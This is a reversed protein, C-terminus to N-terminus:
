RSLKEAEKQDEVKENCEQISEAEKNTLSSRGDQDVAQHRSRRKPSKVPTHKRVAPISVRKSASM